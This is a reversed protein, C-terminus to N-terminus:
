REGPLYPNLEDRVSDPKTKISIIKRPEICTVNSDITHEESFSPENVNSDITFGSLTIIVSTGNKQLIGGTPYLVLHQEATQSGNQSFDLITAAPRTFINPMSALNELESMQVDVRWRDKTTHTFVLRAQEGKIGLSSLSINFIGRQLENKNSEMAFSKPMQGTIKLNLQDCAKASYVCAGSLLVLPIIVYLKRIM